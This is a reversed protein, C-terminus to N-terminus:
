RRHCYQCIITGGASRLRRDYDAGRDAKGILLGREHPNHCTACFIKGTKPELPLIIPTEKLSIEINKLINDPPKIWHNPAGAYPDRKNSGFWGGGPHMVEPHCRYCLMKMDEEFRIKVDAISKAKKIDPVEPHCILCKNWLIDGEDDIQEHPNILSLRATARDWEQAFSLTSSATLIIVIYILFRKLM